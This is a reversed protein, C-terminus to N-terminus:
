KKVTFYFVTRIFDEPLFFTNIVIFPFSALKFQTIKTNANDVSRNTKVNLIRTARGYFIKTLM